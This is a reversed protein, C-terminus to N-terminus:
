YVQHHDRSAEQTFGKLCNMCFHQKCRNKTNSSRLLRSLSKIVTYHKMGNESVLLLNIEQNAGRRGKRHIYIERGDVGLVNVSVNNRIEFM